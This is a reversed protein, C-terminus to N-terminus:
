ATACRNCMQQVNVCVSLLCVSLSRARSLSLSRSLSLFLSLQYRVADVHAETTYQNVCDNMKRNLTRNIHQNNNIKIFYLLLLLLYRYICTDNM